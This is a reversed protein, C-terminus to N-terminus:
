EILLPLISAPHQELGMSLRWSKRRMAVIYKAHLESNKFRRFLDALVTMYMENVIKDFLHETAGGILLQQQVNDKCANTVNLEMFSDEVLYSQVIEKAMSARKEAVQQKKYEQVQEVFQVNEVCYENVAFAKFISRKKTDNMVEEVTAFENEGNLQAKWQRVTQQLQPFMTKLQAVQQLDQQANADVLFIGYDPRASADSSTNKWKRTVKFQQVLFLAFEVMANAVSKGPLQMKHGQLVLPLCKPLAKIHNQLSDNKLEFEKQISKSINAVFLMHKVIPDHPFMTQLYQTVTIEDEQACIVPITNMKICTPLLKAIDTITSACMPCGLWKIFLLCVRHHQSLQLVSYNTHAIKLTGLTQPSVNPLTTNNNSPM